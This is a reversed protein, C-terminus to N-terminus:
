KSTFLILLVTLIVVFITLNAGSNIMILNTDFGINQYKIPITIRDSNDVFYDFISPFKFSIQLTSIFKLFLPDLDMNFYQILAFMEAANLFQFLFKLNFNLLTVSGLVTGIAIAVQQAIKKVAALQKVLLQNALIQSKLPYLNSNLRSSSLL